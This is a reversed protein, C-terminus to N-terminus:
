TDGTGPSLSDSDKVDLSAEDSAQSASTPFDEFLLRPLADARYKCHLIFRMLMWIYLVLAWLIIPYILSPVWGSGIRNALRKTLETPSSLNCFVDHFESARSKGGKSNKIRAHDGRPARTACSHSTSFSTSIIWGSFTPKIDWQYEWYLSLTNSSTEM